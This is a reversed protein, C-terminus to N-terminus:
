IDVVARHKLRRIQVPLRQMHHREYHALIAVIDDRTVGNGRGRDVAQEIVPVLQFVAIVPQVFRVALVVTRALPNGNRLAHRQCGHGAAVLDDDRVLAAFLVEHRLVVVRVHKAVSRDAIFRSKDAVVRYELQIVCLKSANFIISIEGQLKFSAAANGRPVLFVGNVCAIQGNLAVSNQGNRRLITLRVLRQVADAGIRLVAPMHRHGLAGQIPELPEREGAARKGQEARICLCKYVDIAAEFCSFNGVACLQPQYIFVSHSDERLFRRQFVWLIPIKKRYVCYM